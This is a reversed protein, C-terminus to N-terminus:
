DILIAAINITDDNGVFRERFLTANEEGFIEMIKNSPYEIANRNQTVMESLLFKRIEPFPLNNLTLVASGKLLDELDLPKHFNLGFISSTDSVEVISFNMVSSLANKGKRKILSDINRESLLTELVNSHFGSPVLFVIKHDYYNYLKERIRSKNVIDSVEVEAIFRTGGYYFIGDPVLGNIKIGRELQIKHDKLFIEFQDLIHEHLDLLPEEDKEINTGYKEISEERLRNFSELDDKIGCLEPVVSLPGSIGTERQSWLVCKHISQSTLVHFLQTSVPDSFFNRSITRAEDDSVSFSIFNSANGKVTEMIRDNYKGIFQTAMIIHFGFKRGERLLRDLVNESLLQAEDVVIYIPIREKIDYIRSTWLKLILLVSIIRYNEESTVEKWIEPILIKSGSQLFELLDTSDLRGSAINKLGEDAIVPLLKNISSAVYQNWGRWDAMQSKLFQRLNDNKIVKLFLRMKSPNALLDLLDALNADDKSLILENMVSTFILELRPGWTGQSLTNESSFADRVWGGIVSPDNQEGKIQLPNLTISKQRIGSFVSRPSLVMTSDVYRCALSRAMNGHPDLIVVSGLKKDIIESVIRKLINSKGTGTKGLVVLHRRLADPNLFVDKGTVSHGLLIGLDSFFFDPSYSIIRDHRYNM